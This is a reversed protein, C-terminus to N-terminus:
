KSASEISEAIGLGKRVSKDEDCFLLTPSEPASLWFTSNLKERQRSRKPSRRAHAVFAFGYREAFAAMKPAPIMSAGCGAAVVVHSNDIM